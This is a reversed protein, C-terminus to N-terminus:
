IVTKDACALFCGTKIKNLFISLIELRIKPASVIRAAFLTVGLTVGLVLM